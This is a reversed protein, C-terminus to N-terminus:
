YRRLAAVLVGQIAVQEPRYHQPQFAPNEPHLVIEGPKQEIRKLTASEGDILAVVTEGNRAHQRQEVVVVDGDLIGADRMSDGKVRLAYCPGAVKLWAPLTIREDRILAEIPRGAAIAGLLPIAGDEDNAAEILRVGRQKGNMAEVLGAEVLAVVQKHLSGRSALGLDRCIEGLSPPREGRTERDRLYVLLDHQRRTLAPLARAAAAAVSGSAPTPRARPTGASRPSPAEVLYEAPEESRVESPTADELRVEPSLAAASISPSVGDLANELALSGKSVIDLEVTQAQISSVNEAAPAPQAAGGLGWLDLQQDNASSGKPRAKSRKGDQKNEM